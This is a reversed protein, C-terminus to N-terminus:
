TKRKGSSRLRNSPRASPPEKVDQQRRKSRPAEAGGAVEQWRHDHYGPAHEFPKPDRIDSRVAEQPGSSHWEDRSAIAQEVEAESGHFMLERPLWRGTAERYLYNAAKILDERRSGREECRAIYKVASGLKFGLKWEEIVDIPEISKNVYYNPDIPRHSM